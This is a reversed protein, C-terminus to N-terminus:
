IVGFYRKKEWDTVATRFADWDAKQSEVLKEYIHPGLAEQVVEDAALEDIAEKLSGPLTRIYKEKLKADDFHYVNEEVAAPIQMKKEIGDLGAYLMAAFALYPNCSPDPFRVEARVAAGVGERARPIRILASRNTNGWCIYVPAEYGPVLRKYSNITPNTVAALARAHALIGAIFQKGIQSLKYPDKEDYFVNKGDKWLSQHVHMGSGNIGFVPKPMFSAYLGYQKALTRVTTKYTLVSDAVELANGYRFDIEHQGPAVEHHSMEIKMGMAELAPVIQRRLDVALDKTALDFYGADDHVQATAPDIGGGNGSKFIFFELEPGVKFEFGMAAAKKQARKLAQRPDGAFPTMDSKYVDCIIRAVKGDSWPLVAYTKPDPILFMDSEHIRVFGDISSGDFWLGDSLLEELRSVTTECMKPMGLIDVFEFDIFQVGKEKVDQMIREKDEKSVFSDM